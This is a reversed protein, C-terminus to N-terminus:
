RSAIEPDQLTELHRRNLSSIADLSRGQLDASVGPPNALNLVPDGKDRFLVGQYSSPFFGSTWNSVGGSGGRGATLVVYGPLNESESGLVYTLWAGMSPRGFRPVGSMLMLQAPHHNFADTHMSRVLCIDDACTGLHPLFDSLEMGCEGHKTFKRNSGLLVASEKQIFAFRVSATMSEPLKQGHLDNLKPKPDFLDLHSPAGEPLFFICNKAKPAFHPAKPALPNTSPVSRTGEDALLGDRELLSLLALAGLGSASSTFFKRRALNVNM